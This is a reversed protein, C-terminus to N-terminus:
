LSAQASHGQIYMDGILWVSVFYLVFKIYELFLTFTNNCMKHNILTEMGM